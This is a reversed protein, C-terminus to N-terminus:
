TGGCVIGLEWPSLSTGRGQMQGGTVQMRRGDCLESCWILGYCLVMFVYGSTCLPRSVM